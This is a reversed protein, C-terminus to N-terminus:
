QVLECFPTPTHDIIGYPLFRILTDLGHWERKRVAVLRPCPPDIPPPYYFSESCIVTMSSQRIRMVVDHFSLLGEKYTM